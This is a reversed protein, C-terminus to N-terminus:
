CRTDRATAGGSWSDIEDLYKLQRQIMMESMPVTFSYHENDIRYLLGIGCLEDVINRWASEAFRSATLDAIEGTAFHQGRARDRDALIRLFEQQDLNTKNWLAAFFGTELTEITEQSPFDSPALLGNVAVLQDFLEKGLVQAMFPHGGSLKTAKLILDPNIDFPLNHMDFPAGIALRTEEHNLRGLDIVEVQDGQEAVRSKVGHADRLLGSLIMLIPVTDSQESHINAAKLLRAILRAETHGWSLFQAEDYALLIGKFQSQLALTGAKHLVVQLRESPDGAVADFSQRLAHYVLSQLEARGDPSGSNQTQARNDSGIDLRRSLAVSLDTLIRTMLREESLASAESLDNACCIWDSSEAFAVLQGLLATKGFGQDGSIVLCKTPSDGNIWQAFAERERGRGAFFPPAHGAGPRFPNEHPM